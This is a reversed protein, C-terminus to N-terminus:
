FIERRLSAKAIRSEVPNVGIGPGDPVRITGPGSLEISPDILDGRYYRRSASLDNPYKFDPLTSVIPGASAANSGRDIEIREIAM